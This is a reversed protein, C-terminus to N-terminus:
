RPWKLTERSRHAITSSGISRDYGFRRPAHEDGANRGGQKKRSFPKIPLDVSPAAPDPASAHPSWAVGSLSRVIDSRSRRVSVATPPRWTRRTGSEDQLSRSPERAADGTTRFGLFDRSGLDTDSESGGHKRNRRRDQNGCRPQHRLHHKCFRLIIGPDLLPPM